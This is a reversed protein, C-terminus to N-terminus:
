GPRSRLAAPVRAHNMACVAIALADAADDPRPVQELRFLARVMAQVQAKDARGYGVLATKVASPTYEEIPVGAQTLALLVVGRAQGVSIASPASRGVFLREVAALDPRHAELLARVRDYIRSLREGAALTPPTTIVGYDVAVPRGTRGEVLAFGTRHTGPDIGLVM